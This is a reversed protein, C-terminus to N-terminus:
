FGLFIRLDQFGEDGWDQLGIGIVGLLVGLSKYTTPVGGLGGPDEAPQSEFDAALGLSPPTRVPTTPLSPPLPARQTEAALSSLERATQRPLPPDENESAPRSTPQPVHPLTTM